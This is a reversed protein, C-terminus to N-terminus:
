SIVLDFYAESDQEGMESAAFVSKSSRKRLLIPKFDKTIQRLGELVKRNNVKKKKFELM